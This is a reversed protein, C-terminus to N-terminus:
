TLKPLSPGRARLEKSNEIKVKKDYSAKFQKEFLSLSNSQNLPDHSIASYTSLVLKSFASILSKTGVKEVKILFVVEQFFAQKM